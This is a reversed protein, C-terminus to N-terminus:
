VLVLGGRGGGGGGGGTGGGSGSTTTAASMGGAALTIHNILNATQTIALTIATQAYAPSGTGGAVWAIAAATEDYYPQFWYTTTATLGTIAQSNDAISTITGDARYIKLSTWSWTISTTTSTYSFTGSVSFPMSGIAGISTGAFTLTSEFSQTNMASVWYYYTSGTAAMLIDSVVIAGVQNPTPVITQILSATASNNATNRYVKYVAIVEVDGAPFVVQNFSFQFGTSTGVVSQAITPAPPAGVQGTLTVLTHAAFSLPASNGSSSVTQGFVSVTEGTSDVIFTLPSSPSSAILQPNINAHYGTFWIAVHDYNADAPDITFSVTVASFVAGQYIVPSQVAAISLLALPVGDKGSPDAGPTQQTGATDTITRFIIGTIPHNIPVRGSVPRFSKPIGGIHTSLISEEFDTNKIM